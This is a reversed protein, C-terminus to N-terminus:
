LLASVDQDRNFTQCNRWVLAIDAICEKASFYEKKQLKKKITSLDMPHKVIDPYTPLNLKKWDVPKRFPWAFDHKFLHPM